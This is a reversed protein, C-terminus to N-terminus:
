RGRAQKNRRAMWEDIPLDDTLASDNSAKGTSVPTIPEPAKSISKKPPTSLKEELKGIEKAQAYAPLRAIREAEEPSKGLHYVIDQSNDAELLAGLMAQSFKLGKTRLLEGTSEAVEEFDPYKNVGKEMLAEELEAKRAQESQQSRQAEQNRQQEREQALEQKVEYRAVAKLYDSYDAFDEERPADQVEQKAAVEQMVKARTEAEIRAKELKREYRNRIEAAKANIQAQVEEETFVKPAAAEEKAPEDTPTDTSEPAVSPETAPAEVAPADGDGFHFTHMFPFLIAQLLQSM